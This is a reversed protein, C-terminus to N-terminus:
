RLCFLQETGAVVQEDTYQIFEGSRDFPGHLALWVASRAPVEPPELEGSDKLGRFKELDAQTMGSSSRIEKQMQTDIVGPRLSFFAVEPCETAAIKTLHLLGAKSTCYASWGEMVKIAAGSSVNVIRGKQRKLHPLAARMLLAPATLNVTIARAWDQPDSDELRDIPEIMGANNVVGDLRGFKELALDVLRQAENLNSLDSVTWEVEDSKDWLEKLNKESRACALVKCGLGALQSTIAQGLGRSAGTVILVKNM